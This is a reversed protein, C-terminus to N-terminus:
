ELKLIENKTLPHIVILKKWDMGKNIHQIAFTKEPEGIGGILFDVLVLWWESYNSKYPLIKNTKEMICHNINEVYLPGVWGGCDQDVEIGIRFVRPNKNKTKMITISVNKSLKIVFPTKKNEKLFLSLEKKAVKVIDTIKGIPRSYDLSIWYSDKLPPSDYDRFANTLALNLGIREKELGKPKDGKFINQNLRRVEVAIIEKFKFDPPIKGDPEYVVDNSITQLYELAIHEERKM